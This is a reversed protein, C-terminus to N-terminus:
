GAPADPATQDAPAPEAPPQDPPASAAPKPAGGLRVSFGLTGCVMFEDWFSLNQGDWLHALPYFGRVSFVLGVTDVIQWRLFVRAEPYLFRAAGYFYPWANASADIAVQALYYPWVPFRLLADLGLTTGVELVGLFTFRV